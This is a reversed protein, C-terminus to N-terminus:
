WKSGGICIKRRYQTLIESYNKYYDHTGTESDRVLLISKDTNLMCTDDLESYSELVRGSNLLPLVLVLSLSLDLLDTLSTTQTRTHTCTHTTYNNRCQM